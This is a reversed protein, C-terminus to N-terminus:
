RTVKIVVHLVDSSFSVLEGKKKLAEIQIAFKTEISRIRGLTMPIVHKQGRAQYKELLEHQRSLLRRMHKDTSEVQFSVRDANENIRDTRVREYDEELQIDCRDFADSVTETNIENAASLWDSGRVRAANVLEWAQDRDLLEGGNDLRLARAQLEEHTQLGNFTWRKVSCAYHGLQLDRGASREVQIAVLPHFAEDRKELQASIFRTLPHFQSVMEERRNIGRVSNQFRCPIREGTGLRTQGHLGHKRIFETLAAATEPPLRVDVLYHDRESQEFDSGRAHRDLYDKVYVKLDDETIRRKFEHAAKVRELIYGSHAILHGANAELQEQQLRNNEAATYAEEIRRIEEEETLPRSLLHSTLDNVINGLIVEMGGLSREFINLKNLLREFIREDITNAYGLNWITIRDAQQGIRDIRGIRQEIKMPNWPLDYNILVRSFQLDVGESAVESTLLVRSSNDEKFDNIVNQKPINMGGYLLVSSIGDEELREALYELTYRFYSFVIVKEQPHSEFHEKLVACFAAYKSDVRRLEEIDFDKLVKQVIHEILPGVKGTEVDDVGQDEYLMTEIDKNGTRARWSCAAAYMCSSVQRQPPSLLFGDNVDCQFAYNRVAETVSHYFTWEVSDEPMPVFQSHPDRVVRLETVEVKRTRNVSHRLLNVREIRDALEVRNSRESLYVMDIQRELLGALQRNGALLRNTAAKQLEAKISDGTTLPDLALSRAKILPENAELVQPFVDAVAFTDPDVLRLLQFLDQDKNNVPTASLLVVHQSVDRLLRGLEASRTEPNRLYHAEDIILLDISPESEALSDLLRALEADASQREPNNWASPPRLGQLSCVFGKGEHTNEKPKKLEEVLEKASLQSAEVSFRIRLESCWKERLMAPCVVLLRRADYRARLETWILGAEITKGLGVEDAILIGKSPSELLTLVPKYQYAYFDTNTTDMSYVVNALRGSLHIHTLNRRLDNVRGFRKQDLLTFVDEAGGESVLIQYEPVWNLTNDQWRVQLVAGDSRERKRGTLVGRRGPDDRHTVETM